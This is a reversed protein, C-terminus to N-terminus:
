YHGLRDLENSAQGAGEVAGGGGGGLGRGPGRGRWVGGVEGGYDIWAM